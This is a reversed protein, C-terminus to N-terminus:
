ADGRRVVYWDYAQPGEAMFVQEVALGAAEFCSEADSRDLLLVRESFEVPAADGGHLRTDMRMVDAEDLSVVFTAEGGHHPVPVTFLGQEILPRYAAVSYLELSFTAAPRLVDRVHGLAEVLEARSCVYAMSGMLSYATDFTGPAFPLPRRVDAEVLEVNAPVGKLRFEELMAVSNDVGVLRHAWAAAPVAARGTGVGVELAHAGDLHPRLRRIAGDAPLMTAIFSDYVSAVVPGYQVDLGM